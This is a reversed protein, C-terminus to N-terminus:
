QCWERNPFRRALRILGLERKRWHLNDHESVLSHVDDGLKEWRDHHAAIGGLFAAPHELMHWPQIRRRLTVAKWPNITLWQLSDRWRKAYRDIITLCLEANEQLKAAVTAHDNGYEFWRDRAGPIFNGIRSGIACDLLHYDSLQIPKGAFFPPLFAYHFALNITYEGGWKSAQFNIAHIQDDRCRAYTGQVGEVFGAPLLLRRMVQKRISRVASATLTDRPHERGLAKPRRVAYEKQLWLPRNQVSAGEENLRNCIERAKRYLCDPEILYGRIRCANVKKLGKGSARPQWQFVAISCTVSRPDINTPIHNFDWHYLSLATMVM